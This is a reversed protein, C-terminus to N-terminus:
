GFADKVKDFLGKGDRAKEGDLTQALQQLLAKQEKTLQKPTVVHVAIRFDGPRTAIVGALIALVALVALVLIAVTGM